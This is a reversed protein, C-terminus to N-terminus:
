GKWIYLSLWSPYHFLLLLSFVDPPPLRKIDSPPLFLMKNSLAREDKQYPYGKCIFPSNINLFGTRVEFVVGCKVMVFILQNIINLSTIAM